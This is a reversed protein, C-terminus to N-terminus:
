ADIASPQTQSASPHHSPTLRAPAPTLPKHRATRIQLTSSPDKASLM